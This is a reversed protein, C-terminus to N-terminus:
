THYNAFSGCDVDETDMGKEFHNEAGGVLSPPQKRLELCAYKMKNLKAKNHKVSTSNKM